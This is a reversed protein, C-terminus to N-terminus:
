YVSWFSFSYLISDYGNYLTCADTAHHTFIYEKRPKMLTRAGHEKHTQVIADKTGNSLQLM